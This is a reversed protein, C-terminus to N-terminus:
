QEPLHPTLELWLRLADSVKAMQAADLQGIKKGIRERKVASLKDVMLQSEKKLGNGPSPRIALRFLPADLIHSTIPCIVFSSHTPNFFDSQVILAPRPKGSDGPTASVVIDGRKM